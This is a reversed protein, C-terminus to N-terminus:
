RRAAHLDCSGSDCNKGALRYRRRAVWGYVARWLPMALPVHLLPALPWLAPMRRSLVRMADAGGFKQGDSTVLWMEAMLQEHTLQPYREAVRPDHLSIFSLRGSWDLKRLRM